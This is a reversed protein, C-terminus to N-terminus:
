FYAKTFPETIEPTLLLAYAGGFFGFLSVALGIGWSSTQSLRYDLKTVVVEFWDPERWSRLSLWGLVIIAAVVGAAILLRSPTLGLIWSGAAESPIRLFFALSVIGLFFGLLLYIRWLKVQWGRQEYVEEHNM